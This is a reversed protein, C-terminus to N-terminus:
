GLLTRTFCKGHIGPILRSAALKGPGILLLGLAVLGLTLPYEMGGARASFADGHVKFSAVMMTFFILFASPRTALGIALLIGGFCEAGGALGAMLKPMPFGMSDFGSVTKEFGGGGFWGFLKQSGHYFMVYGVILRQILLGLSMM